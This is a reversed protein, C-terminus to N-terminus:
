CSSRGIRIFHLHIDLFSVTGLIGRPRELTFGEMETAACFGSKDWMSELDINDVLVGEKEDDFTYGYIGDFAGAGNPPLILELAAVEDNDPPTEKNLTPVKENPDGTLAEATLLGITSILEM